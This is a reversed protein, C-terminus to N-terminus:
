SGFVLLDDRVYGEVNGSKIKSWSGDDSIIEAMHGPLLVGVSESDTNAESRINAYSQVNAAAKDTWVATNSTSEENTIEASTTDAFVPAAMITTLAAASGLTALVSKKTVRM